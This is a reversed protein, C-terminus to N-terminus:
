PLYKNIHKDGSKIPFSVAQASVVGIVNGPVISGRKVLGHSFGRAKAIPLSLVNGGVLPLERHPPAVDRNCLNCFVLYVRQLVGFVSARLLLVTLLATKYWWVQQETLRYRWVRGHPRNNTTHAVLAVQLSAENIRGLPIPLAFGRAQAMPNSVVPAAQLFMFRRM